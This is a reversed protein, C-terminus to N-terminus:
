LPSGFTIWGVAKEIGGYGLPIGLSAAIQSNEARTEAWVKIGSGLTKAIHRAIRARSLKRRSGDKAVYFFQDRPVSVVFLERKPREPKAPHLGLDTVRVRKQRVREALGRTLDRIRLRKAQQYLSRARAISLSEREAIKIVIRSAREIM